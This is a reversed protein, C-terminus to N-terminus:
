GMWLSIFCVLDPEVIQTM